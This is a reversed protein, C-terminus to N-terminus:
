IEVEKNKYNNLYIDQQIWFTKSCSLYIVFLLLLRGLHHGLLLFSWVVGGDVRAEDGTVRILLDEPM